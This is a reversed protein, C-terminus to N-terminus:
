KTFDITANGVIEGLARIRFQLTGSKAGMVVELKCDLKYVRKGNVIKNPFKSVNLGKLICNVVGVPEVRPHELRGPAVDLGSSKLRVTHTTLETGEVHTLFFDHSRFTDEFIDLGKPIVWTMHGGAYKIGSFACIYADAEEDIGAKFPQGLEIGYHRRCRKKVVAAGELGRLSAGRVVASWAEEPCRVAIQKDSSWKKLRDYLYPSEGFGGVLILNTIPNGADKKVERVQQNVLDIIKSIVPDFLNQIDKETLKVQSDDEDYFDSDEVDRMILTLTYPRTRNGPGRFDRKISEFQRMFESRPAIKKAPLNTFNEGFRKRMLDHFNRDVYTSGCKGGVGVCSEEFQLMPKVQTINYTTIDVTGGGCDCVLIGDGPRIEGEHKLSIKKLTSIAAAEPEPILNITDGPRSGFGARKAANLTSNKAKDSWIAPITFWFEIPTQQLVAESQMTKEFYKLIYQYLQRLYDSVVSEPTKGKPIRMVGSGLGGNECVRRDDHQTSLTDRDLLLKTWTYSIMGAETQYGWCDHDLQRNESAYAICSPTKALYDSSTGPWTKIISIDNVDANNSHTYSVGSFTTGYDVGVILYRRSGYSDAAM